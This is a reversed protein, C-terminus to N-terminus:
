GYETPLLENAPCCQVKGRPERRGKGWHNEYAASLGVAYFFDCNVPVCKFSQQTVHVVGANDIRWRSDAQVFDRM